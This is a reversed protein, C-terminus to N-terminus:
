AVIAVIRSLSWYTAITGIVYLLGRRPGTTHVYRGVLLSTAWALGVVFLQGAEVGLNFTLLAITMHQEPLGIDRLAGAFGLGHVLGFLFAVMAPWRRTLTERERLAEASVLLISLAISAEVPPSRLVLWGLASAALTLSHAVTFATITGVLRRRFGVLLLLSIVFLLHDVGSLIHQVGLVAYAWALELGGRDDSAAGFLHTQPQAATLTYVRQEGGLWHIRVIAASYARGVGDVSLNGVMGQAGCQVSQAKAVCGEPWIPTLDESLPRGKAPPGWSWVFQGHTMERVTLEALSMEHASAPLAVGGLLAMLGAVWALGVFHRLWQAARHASRTM